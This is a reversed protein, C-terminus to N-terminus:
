RNSDARRSERNPKSLTIELTCDTHVASSSPPRVLVGIRNQLVRGAARARLIESHHRRRPTSVTGKVAAAAEMYNAILFSM